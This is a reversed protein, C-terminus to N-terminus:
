RWSGRPANLAMLRTDQAVGSREVIWAEFASLVAPDVGAPDAKKKAVYDSMAKMLAAAQKRDMAFLSLYAQKADDIRNLALYAEGRYEIADPFTPALELARDYHELAKAYDGLKRYSYGAGNHAQPLNPNLKIAKQFDKLAKDHEERAKKENKVRDSEKKDKAAQVEAKLARDRHGIGSNYVEVAMEEPTMARGAPASSPSPSPPVATGNAGTTVQAAAVLAALMVGRKVIRIM